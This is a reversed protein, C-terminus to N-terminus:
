KNIFNNNNTVSLIDDMYVAFILLDEEQQLIYMCPDVLSARFGQEKLWKDLTSNWNRGSQRLGYLSKNLCCTLVTGDLDLQEFGEPQKMYITEEVSTNLYATEIDLQDLAYGELAAIAQLM